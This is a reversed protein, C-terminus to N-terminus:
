KSCMDRAAAQRQLQAFTLCAPEINQAKWRTTSQIALPRPDIFSSLCPRCFAKNNHSMYSHYGSSQRYSISPKQGMFKGLDVVVWRLLCIIRWLDATKGCMKKRKCEHCDNLNYIQIYM